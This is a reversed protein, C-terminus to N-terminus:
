TLQHAQRHLWAEVFEAPTLWGHASHPRNINYDVRWAETIDVALEIVASPTGTLHQVNGPFVESWTIM